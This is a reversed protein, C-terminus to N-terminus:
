LVWGTFATQNADLTVSFDVRGDGDVDGRVVTLDDSARYHVTLQGAHGDFQAVLAFAQDGARATDADIASLDIQDGASLDTIEDGSRLHASDRVSLFVFIDGGDGGTLHDGGLGGTLRDAGDDGALQDAGSLGLIVDAGLGGVVTDGGGGGSLQNDADNGTIADAARGGIANEIVVGAAVTYGGYIGEAWSVWGGGGVEYQLSAPRLDITAALKGHGSITDDGGADWICSYFTGRHNAEPLRYVDDGTMYSTNAGYKSQLVAVDMAMLTGQYGFNDSSSTGDPGDPWGDNYSMTTFVGQNLGFDGTTFGTAVDGTVGHMVESSGGNDHPHALGMGHGFEHIFTIFNYGGQELSARSWGVGAKNFDGVGENETGPPRMQGLLAPATATEVLIFDANAANAVETFDVKIIHEYQDFATKTDAKAYDDWGVSVVPDDVSGFVEGPKAYYVKVHHTDVKTGWDIAALPTGGFGSGDDNIHGILNYAGFDAPTFGKVNVYYTGAADAHFKLAEPAGMGGSDASTVLNGEADYLELLMDPGTQGTDAQTLKFEYDEGADLHLLYYDQDAPTQLSSDISQGEAGNLTVTSSTDDPVDDGLPPPASIGSAAAPQLDSISDSHFAFESSSLDLLNSVASATSMRVDM